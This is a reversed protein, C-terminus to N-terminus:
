AAIDSECSNRAPGWAPGFDAARRSNTLSTAPVVVMLLATVHALSVLGFDWTAPGVKSSMLASRVTPGCVHSAPMSSLAEDASV